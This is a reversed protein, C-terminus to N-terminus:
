IKTEERDELVKLMDPIEWHKTTVNAAMAPSCRLTQHVRVFNYHMMHISVSHDHNEAKGSFGSTLRTFRRSGMCITLHAREVHSTSIHKPAPM